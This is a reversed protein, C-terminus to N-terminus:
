KDNIAPVNVFSLVMKNNFNKGLVVCLKNNYFLSISDGDIEGDGDTDGDGNGDERPAFGPQASDAAGSM